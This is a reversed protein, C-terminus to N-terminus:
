LLLLGQEPPKIDKKLGGYFNKTMAFQRDTLFMIIVHGNPPVYSKVSMAVQEAKEKSTAYYTYVSLQLRTFGLKLLDKRFKNAHRRDTKTLTPLDFSAILWM